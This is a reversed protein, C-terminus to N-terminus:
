TMEAMALVGCIVCIFVSEMEVDCIARLDRLNVCILWRLSGSRGRVQTPDLEGCSSSRSTLM